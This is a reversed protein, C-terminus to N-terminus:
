IQLIKLALQNQKIKRKERRKKNRKKETYQFISHEFNNVIAAEWHEFVLEKYIFWRFEEMILNILEPYSLQFYHNTDMKYIFVTLPKHYM